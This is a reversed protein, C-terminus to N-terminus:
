EIAEKIVGGGLVREGDYFVASQGRAVAFQKEKFILKLKEGEYEIFCECPKHRYRLQVFGRGEPINNSLWNLNRVYCGSFFSDKIESVIVENEKANIKKVYLRESHSIGLKRRQGITFNFYGNHRGIIKGNVDKIYGEEPFLAYKKKLWLQYNGDPIFCIDKSEKEKVSPLNYKIAIRKVEEKDMEGLPFILNGLSEKNICYLFYSQDKNKDRGRLLFYEDSKKLIRAYHGTALYDIGMAKILEFLYDFKLYRNCEVCPNPTEAKLYSNAFNEIVYKLFPSRADKLYHKIELINCVKRAVDLSHEAGCCKIKDDSDFFRLTIGIVEFGQEKLLACAVSSDIGGSMAVAVKKM